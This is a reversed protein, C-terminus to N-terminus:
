SDSSINWLLDLQGLMTAAAEGTKLEQEERLSVLAYRERLRLLLNVIVQQLRQLTAARSVEINKFPNSGFLIINRNLIDTFKVAFAESAVSIESELIFKVNLRIAAYSMRLVERLPDVQSVM